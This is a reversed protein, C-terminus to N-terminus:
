LHFQEYPLAVNKHMIQQPRQHLGKEIIHSQKRTPGNLDQGIKTQPSEKDHVKEKQTKICIRSAVLIPIPYLLLSKVELFTIGNFLKSDKCKIRGMWRARSKACYLFGVGICAFDIGISKSPFSMNPQAWVPVPLVAAKKSGM